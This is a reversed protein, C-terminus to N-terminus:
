QVLLSGHHVAVELLTTTQTPIAGHARTNYNLAQYSNSPTDMNSYTHSYYLFHTVPTTRTTEFTCGLGLRREIGIEGERKM